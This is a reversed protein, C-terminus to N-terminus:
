KEYKPKAFVFEHKYNEIIDKLYSDESIDTLAIATLMEDIILGKTVMDLQGINYFLREVEDTNCVKLFTKCVVEFMINANIYDKEFGTVKNIITKLDERM